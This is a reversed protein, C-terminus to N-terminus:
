EWDYTAYEALAQEENYEKLKQLRQVAERLQPTQRCFCFRLYEKNDSTKDYFVDGPVCAVGVARILFMAADRPRKVFGRLAPVEGYRCFAYYAARPISTIEFGLTRLATVLLDRREAYKRRLGEYYDDGCSDLLAEAGIQVPTAAQMVTQDHVARVRPTLHAPSIIWGLRWGTASWTKGLSNLVVYRDAMRAADNADFGADPTLVTATDLGAIYHKDTDDYIMRDYIDDAVLYVDHDLCIRCLKRLEDVSFVKGTPNHPDCLVIVKCKKAREKVEEMDLEWSGDRETLTAYEARLWFVAAQSPYLEHFPRMVLVGDGPKCVSRLVCALGETAGSTVTINADPDFRDTTFVEPYTRRYYAAIARRLEVRGFPISYQSATDTTRIRECVSSVLDPLTLDGVDTKSLLHSVRRHTLSARGEDTGALLGCLVASVGVYPPGENPFGQSLNVCDYKIALRSMTRIGSESVQFEDDENIAAGISKTTM